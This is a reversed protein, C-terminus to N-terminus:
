DPILSMVVLANELRYGLVALLADDRNVYDSALSKSTWDLESGSWYAGSITNLIYYRM